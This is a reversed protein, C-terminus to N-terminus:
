DSAIRINRLDIAKLNKDYAIYRWSKKLEEKDKFDIHFVNKERLQTYDYSDRLLGECDTTDISSVPCLEVKFSEKPSAFYVRYGGPRKELAIKTTSSLNLLENSNSEAEIGAEYALHIFALKAINHLLNLNNLNELTDSAKHMHPNYSNPNEFPFVTPYGKIHWSKHDSTGGAKLNTVVIEQDLYKKATHVLARTKAKSTNNTVLFLTDEDSYGAMDIQLLSSVAKAEKKYNNAIDRSGILGIEEAAYFHFEVTRTFNIQDDNILRIIEVLIAVGTADDDAGPAKDTNSISDLHASLITSEDSDGLYKVIISEQDVDEHKFRSLSFKPNASILSNIKTELHDTTNNASKKYHRTSLSELDKITKKIDNLSLKSILDKLGEIYEFSSIIPALFSNLQFLKDTLSFKEINGCRHSQSHAIKSIAEIQDENPNLFLAIEEKDNIAKKQSFNKEETFSGKNAVVSYVSNNESLSFPFDERDIVIGRVTRIPGAQLASTFLM